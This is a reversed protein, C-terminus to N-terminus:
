GPGKGPPSPTAKLFDLFEIIKKPDLRYPTGKGEYFGYREILDPMLLSFEIRKEIDLNDAIVLANTITGDRFPSAQYWNSLRVSAKFRRGHYRFEKSAAKEATLKEAALGIGRLHKALEQHTLGLQDVVYRNDEVLIDLLREDAGLFGRTAYAGPRMDKELDAITRGYIETLDRILSTDNKGGIRFDTSIDKKPPFTKIELNTFDPISSKEQAAVKSIPGAPGIALAFILHAALAKLM